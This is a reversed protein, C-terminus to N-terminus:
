RRARGQAARGQAHGAPQWWLVFGLFLGQLHTHAGNEAAASTEGANASARRAQQLREVDAALAAERQAAERTAKQLQAVRSNLAVVRASFHVNKERADRLAGAKAETEAVAEELRAQMAARVAAVEAQRM